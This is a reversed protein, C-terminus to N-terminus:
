KKENNTYFWDAFKQLGTELNTKPQYGLLKRAKQINAFTIPVDGIQQPLKKVIAKKGLAKQLLSILTRLQVPQNNGLNIIEYRSKSYDLAGKIGLVIDDIYTYDRKTRGDGYMIIPKGRVICKAFKHIAL